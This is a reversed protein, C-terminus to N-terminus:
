KPIKRLASKARSVWVRDRRRQFTPAHVDDKIVDNLQTRVLDPQNLILCLEAFQVKARAYSHDEVVRKWINFAAETEGLATLTEAYAMLSYGFDHRFNERCVAELLPRAEAPRQLRLLCQGLHARADIDNPERELAARYCKEAAAFDGKQFYVDGLQFHHYANDLHHIRAQLEKIRARSQSGPLEFGRTGAPAARYVLFFYLFGAFGFGLFIFVAWLWEQRKIADILMWIQFAALLLLLPNHLLYGPNTLYTLLSALMRCALFGRQLQCCFNKQSGSLDWSDGVFAEQRESAFRNWAENGLIAFPDGTKSKPSRRCLSAAVASEFLRHGHGKNLGSKYCPAGSVVVKRLFRL